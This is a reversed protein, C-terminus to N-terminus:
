HRDGSCRQNRDANGQAVPRRRVVRDRGRLAGVTGSGYRGFGRRRGHWRGRHCWGNDGCGNGHPGDVLGAGDLFYAAAFVLWSLLTGAQSLLLVPRRGRSDALSGLVPAAFFQAAPYVAILLAFVVDAQGLDRVVFPLVPILLTGGLANVFTLLIIPLTRRNM